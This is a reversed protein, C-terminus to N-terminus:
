TADSSTARGDRAARPGFPAPAGTLTATQAHRRIDILVALYLHTGGVDDHDHTHGPGALGRDTGQQRGPEANRVGLAVVEM